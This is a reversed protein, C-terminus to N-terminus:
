ITVGNEGFSDSKKGEAIPEFISKFGDGDRFDNKDSCSLIYDALQRAEYYNRGYFGRGIRFSLILQKFYLLLFMIVLILSVYPNIIGGHWISIATHLAGVILLITFSYSIEEMKKGVYMGVITKTEKQDLLSNAGQYHDKSRVGEIKRKIKAVLEDIKIESTKIEHRLALRKIEEITAPDIDEIKVVKEKLFVWKLVSKDIDEIHIKSITLAETTKKALDPSLAISIFKKLDSYFGSGENGALLKHTLESQILLRPRNALMKRLLSVVYFTITLAALMKTLESISIADIMSLESLLESM